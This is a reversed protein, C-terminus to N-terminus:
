GEGLHQELVVKRTGRPVTFPERTGYRFSFYDTLQPSTVRRIAKMEFHQRRPSPTDFHLISLYRCHCPPSALSPHHPFVLYRAFCFAGPENSGHSTQQDARGWTSSVYSEIRSAWLPLHGGRAM